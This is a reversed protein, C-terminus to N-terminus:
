ADAAQDSRRRRANAISATRKGTAIGFTPLNQRVTDAVYDPALHAYHRETMRTDRHGMARAIVHMPVGQMALLSGYTHRLTHFGVPPEIKAAACAAAIPRKQDQTGWPHGPTRQFMMAGSQRGVILEDFFDAGEDNLPVQRDRGGKAHVVALTRAEPNYDRVRMERLEGWRCGTLVAAQVLPRFAPETANILRIVQDRTLFAARPQDAGRFPKVRRWTTDDSVKGDRWAYNLAAKLLALLRNATAQRRRKIEKPDADSPATTARRSGKSARVTRGSSVM